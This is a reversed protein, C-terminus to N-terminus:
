YKVAMEIGMTWIHHTHAHTGIHMDTHTDRINDYLERHELEIHFIPVM